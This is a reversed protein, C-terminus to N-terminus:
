DRIRSPPAPGSRLTRQPTIRNIGHGMPKKQVSVELNPEIMADSSSPESEVGRDYVNTCSHESCEPVNPRRLYLSLATSYTLADHFEVDNRSFRRFM